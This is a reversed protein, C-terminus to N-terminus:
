LPVICMRSLYKQMHMEPGAFMIKERVAGGGWEHIFFKIERISQM